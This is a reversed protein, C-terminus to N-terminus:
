LTESWAYILHSLPDTLYGDEHLAAIHMLLSWLWAPM